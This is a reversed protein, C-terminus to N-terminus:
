GQLTRREVNELVAVSKGKEKLLKTFFIEPEEEITEVPLKTMYIRPMKQKRKQSLGHGDELRKDVAYPLYINTDKTLHPQGSMETTKPRFRNRRSKGHKRKIKRSGSRVRSHMAGSISDLGTQFFRSQLSPSKEDVTQVTLGNKLIFLVLFAVCRCDTLRKRFITCLM